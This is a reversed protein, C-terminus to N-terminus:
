QAHRYLGSYREYLAALALAQGHIAPHTLPLVGNRSSLLYLYFRM